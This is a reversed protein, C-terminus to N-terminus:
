CKIRILRNSVKGWARWTSGTNNRDHNQCCSYFKVRLKHKSCQKQTYRCTGPYLAFLCIWVFYYQEREFESAAALTGGGWSIETSLGTPPVTWSISSASVVTLTKENKTIKKRLKPWCVTSKRWYCQKHDNANGLVQLKKNACHTPLFSSKM